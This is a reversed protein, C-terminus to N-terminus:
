FQFYLFPSSRSGAIIAVSVGFILALVLDWRFTRQHKMDFANPGGSAWIGAIITAVLALSASPVTVGAVPTFMKGLLGLAMDFSTSRFMVWGVIALLWMIPRRVWVALTDYWPSM